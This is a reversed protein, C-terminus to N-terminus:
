LSESPPTDAAANGEDTRPLRATMGTAAADDLIQEDPAIREAPPPTPAAAQPEPAVPAPEPAAVPPAPEIVNETVNETPQQKSCGGVVLLAALVGAMTM